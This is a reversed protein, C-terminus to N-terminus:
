SICVTYLKSNAWDKKRRISIQSQNAWDQIRGRDLKGIYDRIHFEILATKFEGESSLAFLAFIFRLHFKGQICYTNSAHIDQLCNVNQALKVFPIIIDTLRHIM